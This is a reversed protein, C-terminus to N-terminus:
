YMFSVFGIMFCVPWLVRAVTPQQAWEHKGEESGKDLGTIVPVLAVVLGITVLGASILKLLTPKKRLIILSHVHMCTYLIYIYINM